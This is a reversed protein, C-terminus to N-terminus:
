LPIELPLRVRFTAGEGPESEVAIEGGQWALFTRIWWLGFGKSVGATPREKEATTYFLDFLRDQKEKPIGRGTDTFWVEVFETDSAQSGIELRKVGSESMADVANTILEVFVDVLLRPTQVKSLSSDFVTVVDVDSPVSAARIADELLRNIDFRGAESPRSPKQLEEALELVYRANREIMDLQEDVFGDVAKLHRRIDGACLPLLAITNNIRHAIGDAAHGLYAFKEEAIRREQEQQLAEYMQASRIAIVARVSLDELWRADEEDFVDVGSDEVNLVGLLAEGDVLPTALESRVDAIFPIYIGKWPEETVDGIRRTKRDRAVLGVIGEGIKQRAREKGTLVGRSVRMVLDGTAENHWMINGSSAETREFAKELILELVNQLEPGPRIRDVIARDIERSALIDGEKRELQLQLEEYLRANEIAVAAQGAIAQLVEEDDEGYVNEYEDNRLVVVGMVENGVMMPVGIWSRPTKSIHETAYTKYAKEVDVPRHARRARIVYETLGPKEDAPRPGWGKKHEVDVRRGSDMALGFRVTGHIISEEPKEEYEDPQNPDPEYLAIYMDSTDMLLRAQEYILELIEQESLRIGSTLQRGVENVARLNAIKRGLREYLRINEVTLATQRAITPLVRLGSEGFAGAKRRNEVVLVGIVRGEVTMPVGLWSLPPEDGPWYKLGKEKLEKKPDKEVLLLDRQAIVSDTLWTDGQYSRPRWPDQDTAILNGGDVVLPFELEAKVPDYLAVYFRDAEMLRQVKDNVSMLINRIRETAM